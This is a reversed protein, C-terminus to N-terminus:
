FRPIRGRPGTNPEMWDPLGLWRELGFLVLCLAIIALVLVVRRWGPPHHAWRAMRM